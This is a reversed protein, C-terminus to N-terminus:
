KQVGIMATIAWQAKADINLTEDVFWRLVPESLIKRFIVENGKSCCYTTAGTLLGGM